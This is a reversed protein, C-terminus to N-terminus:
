VFAHPAVTPPSVGELDLISASGLLQAPTHV